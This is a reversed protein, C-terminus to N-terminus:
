YSSTDGYNKVVDNFSLVSTGKAVSLNITKSVTNYNNDASPKCHNIHFWSCCNNTYKWKVNSHKLKTVTPIHALAQRSTFLTTM